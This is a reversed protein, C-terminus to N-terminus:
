TSEDRGCSSHPVELRVPHVGSDHRDEGQHRYGKVELALSESPPSEFVDLFITVRRFRVIALSGDKRYLPSLHFVPTNFAQVSQFTTTRRTLNTTGFGWSCRSRNSTNGSPNNKRSSFM